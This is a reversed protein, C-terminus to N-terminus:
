QIVDKKNEQKKYAMVIKKKDGKASQWEPVKRLLKRM